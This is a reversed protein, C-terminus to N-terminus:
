TDVVYCDGNANIGEVKYMYKRTIGLSLSETFQGDSATGVTGGPLLKGIILLWRTAGPWNAGTLDTMRDHQFVHRKPDRIQYTFAEGNNLIYKSKKWIKLKFRSLATPFDWPTTGRYLADVAAGGNPITYTDNAGAQLVEYLSIYSLSTSETFPKSSTIEYVDVELRGQSDAVQSAGSKSTTTNRVTLDLIASQFMIKTTRDVNYDVTPAAINQQTELAAMSTIDNLYSTTSQNGYLAVNMILHYAGTTNTGTVSKNFVVTRTGLDKEAVYNVKKIFRKWIRRRYRPMRKKRYVSKKDYHSTVGIGSTGRFNRRSVMPISAGRQPNNRRRVNRRPAFTSNRIRKGNRLRMYAMTSLAASGVRKLLALKRLGTYKYYTNWQGPVSHGFITRYPTSVEEFNGQIIVHSRRLINLFSM